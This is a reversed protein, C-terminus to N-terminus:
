LYALLAFIVLLCVLMGVFFKWIYSLWKKYPIKMYSLGFLLFVSIPTIFQILGYITTFILFMVNGEVGSFSGVYYAYTYGIFAFDTNFFSAIMAQITGIFPNFGDVLEGVANVITPIFPSWYIFVFVLYALVLYLTPRVMKKIGDWANAFFDNFKMRSVFAIIVTMIGIVISFDFLYWSGFAPAIDAQLVNSVGGLLAQFIPIGGLEVEMMKEHFEEFIEIGFITTGTLSTNWYTFGLVMFIFVIVFCTVIPWIKHKKKKSDDEVYFADDQLDEKAGEGNLSKKIAMVNFFSFLVYALVFIGIRVALETLITVDSGAYTLYSVFADLGETGITVGLVGVLISGFTTALASIKSLGMKRLVTILFPMFVILVMTNNLMSALVAIIFSIVLSIIIEKNKGFKALRNVMEKYGSTKSVVGYFIGVVLLFAIQMYYNQLAYSFGYFISALGLQGVEGDVFSGGTSFSGTPIIWSLVIILLLILSIIKVLDHEKFLKKM